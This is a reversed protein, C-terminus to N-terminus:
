RGRAYLGSLIVGDRQLEKLAPHAEAWYVIRDHNPLVTNFHSQRREILAYDAQDIWGEAWLVGQDDYFSGWGPPRLMILDSRLLGNRQYYYLVDYSNPMVWIRSGSPLTNLEPLFYSYTSAFYISELGLRRAGAVGGVLDNYYALEFPHLQVIAHIGPALLLSALLFRALAPRFAPHWRGLRKEIGLWLVDFGEASLVALHFFAPLLLRDSDHLHNGPLAFWGLTVAMGLLHLDFWWAQEPPAQWRRGSGLAALILLLIPTTILLIAPPLWWPTNDVYLHGGFWQPISYHIRFFEEWAFLGGLTNKWLWPWGAVLVILAVPLSLFWMIANRWLRRNELLWLAWFPM